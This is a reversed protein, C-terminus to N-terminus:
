KAAPYAIYPLCSYEEKSHILYKVCPVEKFKQFAPWVLHQRSDVLDVVVINM